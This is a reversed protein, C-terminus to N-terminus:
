MGDIRQSTPADYRLSDGEIMLSILYARGPCAQEM